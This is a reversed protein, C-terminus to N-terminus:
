PSPPKLLFVWVSAYFAANKKVQFIRWKIRGDTNKRQLWWYVHVVLGQHVSSFRLTQKQPNPRLFYSIKVPALRRSAMSGMCASGQPIRTFLGRALRSTSSFIAKIQSVSWTQKCHLQTGQFIQKFVIWPIIKFHKVAVTNVFIRTISRWHQRWTHCSQHELLLKVLWFSGVQLTRPSFSVM